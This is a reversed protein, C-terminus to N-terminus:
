RFRAQQYEAPAGAGPNALGSRLLWLAIDQDKAFCQYTGGGKDHCKIDGGNTALFQKLKSRNTQWEVPNLNAPDTIGFLRVQISDKGGNPLMTISSTRNDIVKGLFTTTAPAPPTQSPVTVPPRAVTAVVDPPKPISPPTHDPAPVMMGSPPVQQATAPETTPTTLPVDAVPPSDPPRPTLAPASVPPRSVPQAVPGPEPPVTVVPARVVPTTVVPARTTPTPSQESPTPRTPPPTNSAVVSPTPKLPVPQDFAPLVFEYGIFTLIVVVVGALVIIPTRNPPPPIPVVDDIPSPTDAGPRPGSPRGTQSRDTGTPLEPLPPVAGVAPFIEARLVDASQAAVEHTGLARGFEDITAFRDSPAKSLARALTQDVADPLGPLKERLRPPEVEIHARIMEYETALDFPPAGGLMEYVVCALSYLDGRQDSELGRIAEPPMYALTGVISGERTLRQSGSVRAIGFDMVKLVGAETIMMNAPKIDRHVVGMRHAHVLGATAQSLVAQGQKLSLQRLRSLVKELTHGRVMEMVMHLQDDEDLLDYLTTINPHSLNALIKAEERFREVFTKDTVFQAHLSKIAVTRGLQRDRAAYVRGIGGAGLMGIIEYKGIMEPM